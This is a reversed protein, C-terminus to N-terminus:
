RSLEALAGAHAHMAAALQARLAGRAPRWAAVSGAAGVLEYYAKLKPETGSPRLIVRLGRARAQAEDAGEEGYYRVLVDSRAAGEGRLLDDEAVLRRGCLTAAPTDRLRRMLAAGGAADLALTQQATVYIGHAVQLRALAHWLTEGHRALADALQLLAVLASIGDKDYVLDTVAYGLAEEYAFALRGGRAAEALAVRALWKFGTLTEVFRVGRAEALRALMRSSARTTAVVDGPRPAQLARDALLIGLEDGSLPCLAGLEDRAAVALRDADPDNACALACGRATALAMVRDMSGPEEPNPFAVTPFSGDPAEQEAVVHLTCSGCAEVARRVLPAGVGHLPTYAVSLRPADGATSAHDPAVRLAGHLAELYADHAQAAVRILGRASVLAGREVCAVPQARAAVAEIARAIDADQPAVIQAGDQWYVKLGNYAPPNHSATIVLGAALKQRRVWFGVVPTPTPADVLQVAFGAALLVGAAAEAFARSNRRGDYGVAVGRTAADPVQARLVEAMAACSQRVVLANFASPGPGMPARLGATGFRLRGAFAARLKPGDRRLLSSALESRTQPDPDHALWRRVEAVLAADPADQPRQPPTPEM